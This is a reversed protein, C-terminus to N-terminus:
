VANLAESRLLIRTNNKGNRIVAFTEKLNMSKNIRILKRVSSNTSKYFERIMKSESQKTLLFLENM